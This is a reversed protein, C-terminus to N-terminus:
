LKVSMELGGDFPLTQTAFGNAPDNLFAFYDAYQRRYTNTNDAIVIAGKRMYPAVLALAPKALPTWIDTLMFDIPGELTKLTERLDGERLEVVGSLGAEAFHARAAKAKEPEYETAIVTCGDNDRWNDRVAAALYLTSVGFSTGAEVARKANLARCLAYCFRAKDPELAVLKDSWFGRGKSLDDSTGSVSRGGNERMFSVLVENQAESQAHLRTLLAKLKLDDDLSNM